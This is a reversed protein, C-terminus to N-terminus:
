SLLKRRAEAALLQRDWEEDYPIGIKAWSTKMRELPNSVDGEEASRYVCFTGSLLMCNEWSKLSKKVLLPLKSEFCEQVRPILTALDCSAMEPTLRKVQVVAHDSLAPHRENRLYAVYRKNSDRKSIPIFHEEELGVVSQRMDGMLRRYALNPGVGVLCQTVIAKLKRNYAVMPYTFDGIWIVDDKAALTVSPTRYRGGQPPIEGFLFAKSLNGVYRYYKLRTPKITEM